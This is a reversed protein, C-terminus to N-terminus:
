GHSPHYVAPLAHAWLAARVRVESLISALTGGTNYGRTSAQMQSDVSSRGATRPDESNRLYNSVQQKALDSPVTVSVSGAGGHRRSTSRAGTSSVHSGSESMGRPPAPTAGDAAATGGSVAPRASTARIEAVDDLGYGGCLSIAMTVKGALVEELEAALEARDAAALAEPPKGRRVVCLSEFYNPIELTNDCTHAQPLKGLLERHEREVLATFPVEIKLLETGPLPLRDSGTVFRVFARFLDPPLGQVVKWLVQYLEPTSRLSEPEESVRFVSKLSPNPGLRSASSEAPGGVMEPLDWPSVHCDRLLVPDLSCVWGKRMEELM